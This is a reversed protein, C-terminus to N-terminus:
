VSASVQRKIKRFKSERIVAAKDLPTQNYKNAVEEDQFTKYAYIKKDETFYYIRNPNDGDDYVRHYGKCETKNDCLAADSFKAALIRRIDDQREIEGWVEDSCYFIFYDSAYKNYFITGLPSLLAIDGSKEILVKRELENCAQYHSKKFRSYDDVGDLLRKIEVLNREFIDHDIKIPVRPIEILEESDEFIYFISCSNVLAM